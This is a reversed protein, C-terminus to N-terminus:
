APRRAYAPSRRAGFPVVTSISPRSPWNAGLALQEQAIGAGGHARQGGGQRHQTAIKLQAANRAHVLARNAIQHICQALQTAGDVVQAIVAKRGQANALWRQFQICRNL